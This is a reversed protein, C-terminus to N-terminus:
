LYPNYIKSQSFPTSDVAEGGERKPLTKTSPTKWHLKHVPPSHCCLTNGVHPFPSSLTPNPIRWCSGWTSPCQQKLQSSLPSPSGFFCLKYGALSRAVTVTATYFCQLGMLQTSPKRHTHEGTQLLLVSMPKDRPYEKGGLFELGWLLSSIVFHHAIM